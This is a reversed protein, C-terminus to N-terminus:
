PQPWGLHQHLFEFTGRGNITHGGNFFEIQTKDARGFQAYLWRTKAYEQAVWSDPAVGDHHGREVMFPRPFILWTLEAYSFTGGMNFYPMEWEDTFMFSYRADTAAVKRTWDNFDGSCISLGYGDLLAPVRVASEGGYSLGYFAIRQPDVAPLSGLWNLWQEHHRLIPSFMSAKVLTGKRSLLRYFAEKRYLNHPAFTIFGREALRAAFDHYAPVDGEIVDKPVGNRGHQCVVVPRKEGPKLDKPLLLIGWAFGEGGVDVVVEYGTWKPEDYIKRTRPQPAPLPEPLRGIVENWFRAKYAKAAQIFAGPQKVPFQAYTWPEQRYEPLLKWLFFENRTRESSRVLEQVQVELEKVQRLQRAAPDFARRADAPLESSLTMPEEVGLLKALHAIAMPSGPALPAEGGVLHCQQLAAPVRHVSLDVGQWGVHVM